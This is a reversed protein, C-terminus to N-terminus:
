KVAGFTLGSVIHKRAVFFLVMPVSMSLVATAGIYSWNIGSTAYFSLARVTLPVTDASTLPMVFLLNNWSFCFVFISAVVLGPRMIPLVVQVLIRSRGAGDVMAAEEIEVPLEEFFPKLLLVGLPIAFTQFAVIPAIHTGVVQFKALLVFIPIVFVIPPALMLALYGLGIMERGRFQWRTLAYSAFIACPIAILTALGSQVLSALLSSAGGGRTMLFAFSTFDPKFFLSLPDSATIEAPRVALIILWIIPIAFVATVVILLLHLVFTRLQKLM